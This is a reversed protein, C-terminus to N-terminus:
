SGLEGCIDKQMMKEAEKPESTHGLVWMLKTVAAEATMNSVPIVGAKLAKKGIDYLSLDTIGNRCQTM